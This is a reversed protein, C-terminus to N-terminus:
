RIPIFKKKNNTELNQEYSSMSIICERPTFEYRNEIEHGLIKGLIDKM